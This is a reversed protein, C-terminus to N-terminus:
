KTVENKRREARKVRTVKLYYEHQYKRRQIEREADTIYKRPRGPGTKTKHTSAEGTAIRGKTKMMERHLIYDLKVREAFWADYTEKDTACILNNWASKIGSLANKVEQNM